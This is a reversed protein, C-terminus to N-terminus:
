AFKHELPSDGQAGQIELWWVAKGGEYSPTGLGDEWLGGGM